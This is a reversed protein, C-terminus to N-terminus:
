LGGGGGWIEGRRGPGRKKKGNGEVNRGVWCRVGKKRRKWREVEVGGREVGVGESFKYGRSSREDNQYVWSNRYTARVTM